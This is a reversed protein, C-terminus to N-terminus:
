TKRSLFYNAAKRDPSYPPHSLEVAGRNALSGKVIMACLTPFQEALSVLQIDRCIAAESKIDAEIESNVRKGGFIIGKHIVRGRDLFTLFVMKIRSKHLRFKQAETIIKNKVGHM